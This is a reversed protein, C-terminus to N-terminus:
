EHHGRYRTRGWGLTLGMVAYFLGFALGQVLAIQTDNLALDAKIPEILLSRITRDAPDKM